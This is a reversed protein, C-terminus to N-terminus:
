IHNSTEDDYSVGRRRRPFQSEAKWGNGHIGSSCVCYRDAPYNPGQGWNMFTSCTEVVFGM